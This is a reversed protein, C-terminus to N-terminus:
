GTGHTEGTVALLPLWPFLLLLYPYEVNGIFDGGVIKTFKVLGPTTKTM